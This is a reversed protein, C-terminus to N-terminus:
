ARRDSAVGPRRGPQQADDTRCSRTIRGAGARRPPQGPGMDAELWHHWLSCVSAPDFRRHRQWDRCSGTRRRSRRSIRSGSWHSAKWPNEPVDFQPHYGAMASDTMNLKGLLVAGADRLRVVVTADYQPVHDALVGTGGKTPIGRTFCLDKVAVPVGHLPGRYRGSGIEADAQTAQQLALQATVTAFAKLRGDLRDIRELQSRTVEISSLKRAKILPALESISMFHMKPEKFDFPFPDVALRRSDM